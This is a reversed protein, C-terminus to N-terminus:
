PWREGAQFSRTVRARTATTAAREQGVKRRTAPSPIVERGNCGWGFGLSAMERVEGGPRTGGFFRATIEARYFAGVRVSTCEQLSDANSARRRWSNGDLNCEGPELRAANM